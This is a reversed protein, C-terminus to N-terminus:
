FDSKWFKKKDFHTSQLFFKLKLTEFNVIKKVRDLQVADLLNVKLYM